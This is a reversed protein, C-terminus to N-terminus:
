LDVKDCFLTPYEKFDALNEKLITKLWAVVNTKNSKTQIRISIIMSKNKNIYDWM